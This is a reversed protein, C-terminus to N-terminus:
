TIVLEFTLHPLTLGLIEETIFFLIRVQYLTFWKSQWKTGDATRKYLPGALTADYRAREALMLLQSETVKIPRQMKPSLMKSNGQITIYEEQNEAM